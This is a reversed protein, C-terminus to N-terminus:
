LRVDSISRDRWVSHGGESRIEFGSDVVRRRDGCRAWEVCDAHTDTGPARAWGASTIANLPAFMIERAKVSHQFPRRFLHFGYTLSGM